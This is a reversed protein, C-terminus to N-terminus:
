GAIIGLSIKSVVYCLCNYAVLFSLSVLSSISVAAPNRDPREMIPAAAPSVNALPGLSNGLLPQLYVAM